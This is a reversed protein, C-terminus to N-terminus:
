PIRQDAVARDSRPRKVLEEPLPELEVVAPRKDLDGLVKARLAPGIRKTEADMKAQLMQELWAALNGLYRVNNESEFGHSLSYAEIGLEAGEEYDDPMLLLVDVRELTSLSHAVHKSRIWRFRGHAERAQPDLKRVFEGELDADEMFCRSYGVLAARVLATVLMGDPGTQDGSGPDPMLPLVHEVLAIVYRADDRVRALAAYSGYEEPTLAVWHKGPFEPLRLPERNVVFMARPGQM